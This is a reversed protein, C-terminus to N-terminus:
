GISANFQEFPDVDDKGGYLRELKRTTERLIKTFEVFKEDNKSNLCMLQLMCLAKISYEQGKDLDVNSNIICEGTRKDAVRIRM